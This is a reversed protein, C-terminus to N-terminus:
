KVCFLVSRQYSSDVTFNLIPIPDTVASELRPWKRILFLLDQSTWSKRSDCTPTTRLKCSPTQIPNISVKNVYSPVVPLVASKVTVCAGPNETKVLRIRAVAKYCDWQWKLYSMFDEKCRRLGKNGNNQL